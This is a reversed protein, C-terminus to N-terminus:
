WLVQCIAEPTGNRGAQADRVKSRPYLTGSEGAMGIQMVAMGQMGM